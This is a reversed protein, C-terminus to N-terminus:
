RELGAQTAGIGVADARLQPQVLLAVDRAQAPQGLRDRERRAPRCGATAGPAGSAAEAFRDRGGRNGQRLARRDRALEAPASIWAQDRIVGLRREVAALRAKVEDLNVAGMAVQGALEERWQGVMALVFVAAVQAAPGAEHELDDGADSGRAALVEREEAADGTLLARLAAELM